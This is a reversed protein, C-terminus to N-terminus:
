HYVNLGRWEPKSPHRRLKDLFRGIWRGERDHREYISCLSKDVRLLNEKYEAPGREWFSKIPFSKPGIFVRLGFSHTGEIIFIDDVCKLCILSLKIGKTGSTRTGSSALRSPQLFDITKRDLTRYIENHIILKADLVKDLKLLRLLFGARNEFQAETDKDGSLSDKLLAIFEELTWKDLAKKAINKQQETAWGWWKGHESKNLLRPDCSFQVIQERWASPFDSGFEKITRNILIRVAEAGLPYGNRLTKSKSELVLKQLDAEIGSNLASRLRQLIIEEFLRDKFQSNEPIKLRVALQEVSENRSKVQAVKEPGSVSFLREAETIYTSIAGDQKEFYESKWSTRLWEALWALCPLREEGFHTLFIATAQDRRVKSKKGALLSQAVSEDFPPIQERDEKKFLDNFYLHLLISERRPFDTYSEFLLRRGFGFRVKQRVKELESSPIAGPPPLNKTIATLRKLSNELLSDGLRFPRLSKLKLFDSEM